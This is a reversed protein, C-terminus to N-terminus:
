RGGGRQKPANRIKPFSLPIPLTVKWKGQASNPNAGEMKRSEGKVAEFKCGLQEYHPRLESVTMKLESALDFPDAQYDDAMLGLILVYSITLEVHEKNRKAGGQPGAGSGKSTFISLFKTVIPGPIGLAETLDVSGGSGWPDAAKRIMSHGANNFALLHQIYNLIHARRESGEKDGEVRLRKLRNLIFEPYVKEDRLAQVESSTYKAAAQLETVDMSEWEESTIIKSLPYAAQPTKANLDFPPVNRAVVSNAQALAQETTLLSENEAADKFLNEMGKMDALDDEKIIGREYRAARLRSRQSGFAETLMKRKIKQMEPTNKDEEEAEEDTPRGYEFGRVRPEMRFVKEGALPMLKLSGKEKDFVGLLYNCPQWGAAEGVYNAGVFDVDESTRVVLEQQRSLPKPNKYAAVEMQVGESEDSTKLPDFRSPFFAVYPCGKGDKSPVYEMKAKVGKERKRKKGDM